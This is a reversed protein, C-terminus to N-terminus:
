SWAMWALRAAMARSLGVARHKRYIRWLDVM